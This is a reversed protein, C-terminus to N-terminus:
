KKGIPIEIRINTGSKASSALNIEGGLFAVRNKLNKLGFGASDSKVKGTDFGKGNDSIIIQLKNADIFIKAEAESAGSHKIINNVCEQVIRYINIESEKDLMGDINEISDKFHIYSLVEIQNFISKLAKTLGLRNLQYPHLNYAIRRVEDIAFSASSSIEKFQEEAFEPKGSKIGLDAQNKIILLDQGLGDHLESAIRKREEEQSQILRKSFEEQIEKEKKLVSVRWLYAVPGISLFLIIIISRFWWTAWFPPNIILVVSAGKTNWIGDNNSGTVKFIYEGPDINTYHAVNGASYIWDKDFGELMYAFRNKPPFTYDLAAFEFSFYIDKYSLIITDAYAINKNFFIEKNLKKFSTFVIEPIFNNDNISDPHFFTVGNVSGFYIRGNKSKWGAGPTFEGLAGDSKDFNRISNSVPNFRTIGKSTSIWLNGLDDETIYAILDSAFGDEERYHIFSNTKEDFKNLGGSYTGIWLNGGSDTFLVTIVDDSLSNPDNPNHKYHIFSENKRDFKNIGGGYTGIWLFGAHDECISLVYDNSLPSTSETSYREFINKERNYKLLGGGNTGLWLTKNKDEYITRINVVGSNEKMLYSLDIRIFSNSERNFKQLSGFYTGIWLDGYSDEYISRVIEGDHSEPNNPDSTYNVFKAQSPIYRDLKKQYSGFWIDGYSDEYISYIFNKSLSNPNGPENKLHFFKGPKRDIKNLGGSVTGIWLVGSRDEFMKRLYDSSISTPDSPNNKLRTFKEQEPNFINIGNSLTGIWLLGRSDEYISWINNGSISNVDQTNKYTTFKKTLSDFKCLGGGYTGFWLNGKKDENICVVSNSSISFPTEPNNKFHTFGETKSNFLSAGGGDTGIWLNNKSDEFITFIKDNSLSTKDHPNHVYHKFSNKDRNFKCLGGGWTGAWVTNNKDVYVCQVVDSGLSTSDDPNHKFHTFTETVPDFKNLGGGDTAIWIFGDKDICMDWILNHSLSAKDGPKHKIIKFSFGDYRNLGEETGVWLFGKKDQIIVNVTNSSLGDDINLKDFKFRDQWHQSFSLTYIFILFIIVLGKHGM